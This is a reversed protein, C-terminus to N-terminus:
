RKEHLSIIFRMTFQDIAFPVKGVCSHLAVIGYRYPEKTFFFPRWPAIVAIM